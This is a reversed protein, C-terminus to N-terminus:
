KWCSRSAAANSEFEEVQRAQNARRIEQQNLGSERMAADQRLMDNQNDLERDVREQAKNAADGILESQASKKREIELERALAESELAERYYAEVEDEETVNMQAALQEARRREKKARELKEADEQAKLM